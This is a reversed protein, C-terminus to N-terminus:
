FFFRTVKLPKKLDASACQELQHITDDVINSRRVDLVLYQQMVPIAFPLGQVFSPGTMAHQMQLAQDAELLLTKAKADFLFSYNCM